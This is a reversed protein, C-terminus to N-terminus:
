FSGDIKMASIEDFWGLDFFIERSFGTGLGAPFLRVVDGDNL